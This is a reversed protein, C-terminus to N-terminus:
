QFAIRPIWGGNICVGGGIAVFPDSFGSCLTMNRPIWGGNVCSGGGIATFPDPTSCSSPPLVPPTPTPTPTPTVGGAPPQMQWGGNVCYGGGFAVFPDATSCGATSPAAPTPVPSPGPTPTPTPAGAPAQMQWGGGVCYGGGMALFPDATTCGGAPAAGPTPVPTPTPTPTPTAAPAPGAGPPFWGGNSCTGGGMAAFPDPTSCGGPASPSPTPTPTPTSSPPTNSAPGMPLDAGGGTTVTEVGQVYTGAYDKSYSVLWRPADTSVAPRPYFSGIAPPPNTSSVVRDGSSRGGRKNLELAGVNSSTQHHGTMLFTGSVANYALGLGDYAGVVSSLVGEAVADGASNIEAGRTGGGFPDSYVMVYNGTAPNYAVDTIYTAVSRHFANRRELQGAGSIIAFGSMVSTLDEGDFSMGFKNTSPNWAVGPDRGYGGSVQVVNGVPQGNLDVMRYKVVSGGGCCTQWTVIFLHNVPSYASPAGAEWWSGQDGANVTGATGLGGPYTVIRTHVLNAGGAGDNQHWTVLFGGTGNIHPSYTVRPYHAFIVNPDPSDNLSFPAGIAQQNADVFAGQVTGYAGVTLFIHNVPDFASDTGRVGGTVIRNSGGLVGLQASATSPMSLALALGGAAIAARSLHDKFDTRKM